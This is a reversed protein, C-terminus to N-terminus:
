QRETMTKRVLEEIRDLQAMVRNQDRELSAIQTDQTADKASQAVAFGTMSGALVIAMGFVAGWIWCNLNTHGRRCQAQMENCEHATRVERREETRERHEETM